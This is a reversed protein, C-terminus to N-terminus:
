KTYEYLKNMGGMGPMGRNEKKDKSQWQSTPVEKCNERIWKLIEQNRMDMSPILFYRVEGAEVMKKLKDVTLAPDNGAFGGMAMVPKGTALIIPAATMANTTAVLYKENKHHLMLYDITKEDAQSNMMNKTGNSRHLQPGAEPLMSSDGYVAPTAAWYLPAALLAALGIAATSRVMRSGNKRWLVLLAAIILGVVSVAIAWAPSIYMKNMVLMVAQVIATVLMATPLLWRRWGEAERYQKWLTVWGIGVLAAIAPALMTLYYQHFFGAISFFVMMPFLWAYWFVAEQQQKTLARRKRAGVFIGISSFLAFPLLWSIQGGLGQSFLRFVGPSGTNFGGRGGPPMKGGNPMPPLKIGAKEIQQQMEKMQAPDMNPMDGPGGRDKSHRMMGGPGGEGTLRSVGNYGFALELVSNTQSSGIYPRQDAPISDVIAAWSVSIALLIVTAGTLQAIKKKWPFTAGLFYFLYFAPLVMYAQLMKMNFGIGVIATALLLWGVRGKKISTFLAWTGILLTFVLLSDINNTRAVAVAVPTVALVLSSILAAIRGFSPKVLVYLIGVAAVGALAQPLIVSWGKLGFIMASLTQIWFTVPPKDITIFGGPDFSAYFFNHFNQMMSQVAATYYTNGMGGSSINYFNLGFSLLMILVLM